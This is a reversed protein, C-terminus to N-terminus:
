EGRVDLYITDGWPAIHKTTSVWLVPYDPAHEPFPGELDTLYVFCIPSVQRDEIAKFVPRFDTGGSALKDPFTVQEGDEFEDVRWVDTHTYFVVVREPKLMNCAAVLESKFVREEQDSVSGSTDIGFAVTGVSEARLSPLYFGSSVYNKAPQAFSYDSRSFTTMFQRFLSRWDVKPKLLEGMFAELNGPMRGVSKANQMAQRAAVAWDNKQAEGNQTDGDRVEGCGGPDNGESDEDSPQGEGPEGEGPEGGGPCKGKGRPPEEPLLPYIAEMSKGSYKADLLGGKPMKLTLVKENGNKLHITVPEAIIPNIAYDAAKNFRRQERWARRWPHGMLCHMCEHACLFLLGEHITPTALSIVYDPNYGMRKGDTWATPCRWDPLPDLRMILSGWFPQQLILEVLAQKVKHEADRQAQARAKDDRQPRKAPLQISM